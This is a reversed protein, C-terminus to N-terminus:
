KSKRKARGIDRAAAQYGRVEMNGLGDDRGLLRALQLRIATTMTIFKDVTMGSRELVEGWKYGESFDSVIQLAVGEFTDKLAEVGDAYFEPSCSGDYAEIDSFMDLYEANDFSNEQKVRINLSCIKAGEIVTKGNEDKSYKAYRVTSDRFFYDKVAHKKIFMAMYSNFDTKKNFDFNTFAYPWWSVFENIIEQRVDGHYKPFYTVFSKNWHYYEDM